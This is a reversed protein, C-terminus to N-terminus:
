TLSGLQYIRAENNHLVSIQANGMQLDGSSDSCGGIWAGCDLLTFLSGSVGERIAIKANHTHACVVFRLDQQYSRNVEGCLECAQPLFGLDAEREGEVQVNWREPIPSDTDRKEVEGLVADPQIERKYKRGHHGKRMLEKMEGLDYDSGAHYPGLIYVAMRKVADPFEEVWDFLDGHLAVGRPIPQDASTLYYRRDWAGFFHHLNFDHNGLILRFKLKTLGEVIDRNDRLIKEVTKAEDMATPAERWLDLYDGMQYVVFTGGESRVQDRLKALEKLVTALLGPATTSYPYDGEKAKSLLHLDPIFVRVDDTSAFNIRRDRLSAVLWVDAVEKLADLVLNHM